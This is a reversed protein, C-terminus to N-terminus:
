FRFGLRDLLPTPASRWGLILLLEDAILATTGRGLLGLDLRLTFGPRIMLSLLLLFIHRSGVAWGLETM